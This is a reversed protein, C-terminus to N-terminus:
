NKTPNLRDLMREKQIEYVEIGAKCISYFEEKATLKEEERLLNNLLEVCHQAMVWACDHLLREM